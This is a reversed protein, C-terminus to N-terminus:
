TNVLLVHIDSYNRLSDVVWLNILLVTDRTKFREILVAVGACNRELM